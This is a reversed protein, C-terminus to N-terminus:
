KVRKFVMGAVFAQVFGVLAWSLVMGYSVQFSSLTIYMGPITAIVFYLKAFELASKAKVKDWLYSAAVGLVFPYGFYAMMLPDDWPRFIAPNQYRSALSPFLVGLLWNVAMGVILIAAGAILGKKWM